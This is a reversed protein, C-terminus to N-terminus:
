KSRAQPLTSALRLFRKSVPGCSQVPHLIARSRLNWSCGGAALGQAPAPRQDLLYNAGDYQGLVEVLWPLVGALTDHLTYPPNIVFMGSGALGFGLSDPKAVTSGPM